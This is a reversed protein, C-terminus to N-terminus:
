HAVVVRGTASEGNAKISYAYMGAPLAVTNFTAIGNTVTQTGVVQGVMNTLTVTASNGQAGTFSITLQDNAPNPTATVKSLGNVNNVGLSGAPLVACTPCVIHYAINPFQANAPADASSGTGAAIINWNAYYKNRGNPFNPAGEFAFYGSTYTAPDYMPWDVPSSSTGPSANVAYEVQTTWYNYKYGTINVNDSFRITDGPGGGRPHYSTDGSKFTVTMAVYNGATVPFSITPDSHGVRPFQQLPVTYSTADTDSGTLLIKYVANSPYTLAGGGNHAARNGSLDRYLQEWYLTTAGYDAAGSGTSMVTALDSTASGNGQVFALILTDVVANKAASGYVRRYWGGVFVSDITYADGINVGILGTFDPFTSSGTTNNWHTYVPDFGLGMSLVDNDQYYKPPTGTVGTYGYLASTDNWMNYGTYYIDKVSGAMYPQLIESAFNYWRAGGVTTRAGSAPAQAFGTRTPGVASTGEASSIKIGQGAAPAVNSSVPANFLISRSAQQAQTFGAVLCATFLLISKKM